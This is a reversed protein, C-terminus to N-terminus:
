PGIPEAARGSFPPADRQYVRAGCQDQDKPKVPQDLAGHERSADALRQPCRATPIRVRWPRFQGGQGAVPQQVAVANRRGHHRGIVDM